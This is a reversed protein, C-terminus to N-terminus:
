RRLTADLIGATQGVAVLALAAAVGTSTDALLVAFAGAVCCTAGGLYVAAGSDVRRATPVFGAAPLLIWGYLAVALLPERELLFGVVGALTVPTGVLIVRRWAALVGTEMEGWSAVVFAVLLVSMVVHAVFLAHTSVVGLATGAAVTWAAPVLLAPGNERLPRFVCM